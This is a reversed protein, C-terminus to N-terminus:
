RAHVCRIAGRTVGDHHNTALVPLQITSVTYRWFHCICNCVWHESASDSVHSPIPGPLSVQVESPLNLTFENQIPNIRAM